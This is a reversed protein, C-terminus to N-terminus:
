SKAQYVHLHGETLRFNKAAVAFAVVIGLSRSLTGWDYLGSKCTGSSVRGPMGIAWRNSRPRRNKQVGMARPEAITRPKGMCNCAEPRDAVPPKPSAADQIEASAIGCPRRGDRRERWGKCGGIAKGKRYLWWGIAASIALAILKM